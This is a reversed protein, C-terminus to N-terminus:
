KACSRCTCVCTGGHQLVGCGYGFDGCHGGHSSLRPREPKQVTDSRIRGLKSLIEMSAFDGVLDDLGTLADYVERMAKARGEKYGYLYSVQEEAVKSPDPHVLCAGEGIDDCSCHMEKPRMNGRRGEHRGGM